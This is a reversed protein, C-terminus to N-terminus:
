HRGPTPALGHILVLPHAPPGSTERGGPVTFGKATHGGLLAPAALPWCLASHLHPPGPRAPSVGVGWCGVGGRGAGGGM